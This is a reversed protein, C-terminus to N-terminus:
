LQRLFKGSPLQGLPRDGDSAVIDRCQEAPKRVCLVEGSSQTSLMQGMLDSDTRGPKIQLDIDVQKTTFLMQRGHATGRVAASSFQLRSEFSLAAVVRLWPKRLSAERKGHAIDVARKLVSEPPAVTRDGATSRLVAQLLTLRRSCRPCSATHVDVQSREEMSLENELYNLLTTYKFHAMSEVMMMLM